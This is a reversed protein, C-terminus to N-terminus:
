YFIYTLNKYRKTLILQKNDMITFSSGPFVEKYALLHFKFICGVLLLMLFENLLVLNGIKQFDMAVYLLSDIIISATPM